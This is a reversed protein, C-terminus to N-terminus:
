LKVNHNNNPCNQLVIICHATTNSAMWELIQRQNEANPCIRVQSDDPNDLLVRGTKEIDFFNLLVWASIYTLVYSIGTDVVHQFAETVEDPPNIVKPKTEYLKTQAITPTPRNSPNFPIEGQFQSSVYDFNSISFCHNVFDIYKQFKFKGSCNYFILAEYM